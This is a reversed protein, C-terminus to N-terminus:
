RLLTIKLPALKGAGESQGESITDQLVLSTALSVDGAVVLELKVGWNLSASALGRAERQAAILGKGDTVVSDPILAQGAVEVVQVALRDSLIANGDVDLSGISASTGSLDRIALGLGGGSRGNSLDTITLRLGGLWGATGDDSLDGVALGLSGAWSTRRNDNLDRIALWLCGARGRLRDNSLDGIALGLGRGWGATGDNGLDGVALRL